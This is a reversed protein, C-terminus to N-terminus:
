SNIDQCGHKAWELVKMFKDLDIWDFVMFMKYNKYDNNDGDFVEFSAEAEDGINMLKCNDGFWPRLLMVGNFMYGNDTQEGEDVKIALEEELVCPNYPAFITGSPMRIFTEYDVIKM